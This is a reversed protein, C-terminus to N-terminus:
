SGIHLKQFALNYVTEVNRKLYELSGNNDIVYDAMDPYLTNSSLPEPEVLLGRDVWFAYDFAKKEKMANFELVNRNGCYIDYKAFLECGLKAPDDRNYEAIADFWHARHNVRDAYCEDMSSYCIGRAELWPRVAREGVFFSSSVFNLGYMGHLLNCATDKGHRAYGIVMLKM